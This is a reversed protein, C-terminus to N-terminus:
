GEAKQRPDRASKVLQRRGLKEFGRRALFEKQRLDLAGLRARGPTKLRFDHEAEYRSSVLESKNM